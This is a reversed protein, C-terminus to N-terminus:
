NIFITKAYSGMTDYIFHKMNFNKNKDSIVKMDLHKLINLTIRIDRELM